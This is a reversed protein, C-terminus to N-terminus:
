TRGPTSLNSSGRCTSPVTTGGLRRSTLAYGCKFPKTPVSKVHDLMQRWRENQRVIADCTQVITGLGVGLVVFDFDRGVRLQKEFGGQVPHHREWAVNAGSLREGGVLQTYDPEVALM